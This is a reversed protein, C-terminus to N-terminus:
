CRSRIIFGEYSYSNKIIFDYMDDIKEKVKLKNIDKYKKFYNPMLFYKIKTKNCLERLVENYYKEVSKIGPDDYDLAVIIGINTLNSIKDIYEKSLDLGLCSTGQEGVSYADLIGETIIIYKNNDFNNKNLIINGKGFYPNKYKPEMNKYIRRAQFYIINENDYIPIIIRDKYDGYYSIFIKYNESICRDKYFNILVKKYNKLYSSDVDDNSGICDKLIGNYYVKRSKEKTEIKEKIRKKKLEEKIKDFRQYRNEEYKEGKVLYYLKRFSGSENCNWCKFVTRDGDYKLNFRRKRKNKKSDGCLLCRALFQTGNRSISVNEFNENMFDTVFELSLM